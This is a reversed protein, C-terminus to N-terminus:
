GHAHAGGFDGGGPYSPRVDISRGGCASCAVPLADIRRETGFREILPALALRGSHGCLLGDAARTECYLVLETAGADTAQGLTIKRPPAM